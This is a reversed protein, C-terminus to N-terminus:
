NHKRDPTINKTRSGKKGTIKFGVYYSEDFSMQGNCNGGDEIDLTCEGNTLWEVRRALEM